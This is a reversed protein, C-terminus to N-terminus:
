SRSEFVMSPAAIDIPKLQELLKNRQEEMTQSIRGCDESECNAFLFREWDGVADDLQNAIDDLRESTNECDSKLKMRISKMEPSQFEPIDCAVDQCSNRVRNSLKRVSAHLTLLKKAVSEAQPMWRDRARSEAENAKSSGGLQYFVIALFLSFLVDVLPTYHEPRAWLYAFPVVFLIAALIWLRVKPVLPHEDNSSAHANSIPDKVSRDSHPSILQSPNSM